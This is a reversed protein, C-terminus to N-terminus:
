LYFMKQLFINDWHMDELNNKRWIAISIVFFSNRIVDTVNMVTICFLISIMNENCFCGELFGDTARSRRREQKQCKKVNKGFFKLNEFCYWIQWLIFM